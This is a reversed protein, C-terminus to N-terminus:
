QLTAFVFLMTVGALIITHMCKKLFRSQSEEIEREYDGKTTICSRTLYFKERETFGNRDVKPYNKEDPAREEYERGKKKAKKDLYMNHDAEELVEKKKLIGNGYGYGIAYNIEDFYESVEAKGQLIVNLEMERKKLAEGKIGDYVVVFEDGGTRYAHDGYVDTLADAMARILEDGAAHGSEDNLKKLDNVDFAIATIDRQSINELDYEMAMKNKLGTMDDHLALYRLKEEELDLTEDM